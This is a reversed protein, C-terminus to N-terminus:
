YFLHRTQQEDVFRSLGVSTSREDIIDLFRRDHESNRTTRVRCQVHGIETSRNEDLVHVDTRQKALREDIGDIIV